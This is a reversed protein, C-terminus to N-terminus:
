VNRGWLGSIDKGGVKEETRWLISLRNGEHLGVWREQVEIEELLENQECSNGRGPLSGPLCPASPATVETVRHRGRAEWLRLTM